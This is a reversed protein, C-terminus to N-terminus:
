MGDVFAEYGAFLRPVDMGEPATAMGQEIMYRVLTELTARNPDVGYPWIEAGFVEKLGHLYGAISPIPVRSARIDELRYFYRRRAIEFARYLNSALWRHRALIEPRIALVNLIPFCGTKRLYEREFPGPRDFLPAAPGPPSASIVADVRGAELLEVPDGDVMTVDDPGVGFMDSLMGRVWVATTTEGAAVALRGGRLDEVSRVWGARVHLCRHRFMRSLFVPLAVVDDHGSLRRAVYDAAPVEAVDWEPHELFEALTGPLPLEVFDSEVGAIPLEGSTVPVALDYSTAAITLPIRKTM